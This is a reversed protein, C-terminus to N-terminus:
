CSCAALPASFFRLPRSMRSPRPSAPRSGASLGLPPPPSHTTPPPPPANNAIQLLGAGGTIPMKCSRPGACHVVCWAEFAAVTAYVFPAAVIAWQYSKIGRRLLIGYKVLGFILASILGALVPSIVFSAIVAGLGNQGTVAGNKTTVVYGWEVGAGSAVGVGILAGILAHTSSTAWGYRNSLYNLTSSSVVVCLFALQLSYLNDRFPDLKIISGRITGANYSGLTMAGLLEMVTAIVMAQQMTLTKSNVAALRAPYVCPHPPPPPPTNSPSAPPILLTLRPAASIEGTAFSNAVDNAGCSRPFFSPASPFPPYPTSRM